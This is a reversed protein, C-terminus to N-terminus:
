LLKFALVILAIIFASYEVISIPTPRFYYYKIWNERGYKKAAIEQAEPTWSIMFRTSLENTEDSFFKYFKKSFPYLWQIGWGIGVGDHAFHLFSLTAFLVALPLNLFIVAGIFGIPIFILPHHLLERHTHTQANSKKGSISYFIFDLDPLLTFLIGIVILFLSLDMREIKAFTMAGFIGLAIDLLM